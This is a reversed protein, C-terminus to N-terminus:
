DSAEIHYLAKKVLGLAKLAQERACPPGDQTSKELMRAVTRLRNETGMQASACQVLSRVKELVDPADSREALHEAATTLLAKSQETSMPGTYEDLEAPSVM